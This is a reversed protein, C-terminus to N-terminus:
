KDTNKNVLSGIERAYIDKVVYVRTLKKYDESFSVKIKYFDEGEGSLIESVFGVTLGGPYVKSLGSTEVRDGPEVKVHSPIDSLLAERYHHGPWSLSGSYGSSALRVSVLSQSHLVSIVSSFHRSVKDVIGVIGNPSVVAMGPEISDASGVDLLIYNDSFNISADLIKAPVYTYRQGFLSDYQSTYTSHSLELRSNELQARLRANEQLLAQNELHLDRKSDQNEGISFFYGKLATCFSFFRAEQQQNYQFFLAMALIELILFVLLYLNRKLIQLLIKM